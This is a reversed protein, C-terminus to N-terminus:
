SRLPDGGLRGAVPQLGAGEVYVRDVGASYALLLNSRVEEPTHGPVSTWYWLDVDAWLPRQYQIAAGMGAALSVTSYQEKCIKPCVTFGARATLLHMDPWILTAVCARVGLSEFRARFAELSAVTTAYAQDLTELSANDVLPVAQNPYLLRWHELEDFLMGLFRASAGDLAIRRM